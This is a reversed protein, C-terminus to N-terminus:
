HIKSVLIGNVSIAYILSTIFFSGYKCVGASTTRIVGRAGYMGRPRPYPPNDRKEWVKTLRPDVMLFCTFFHIIEGNEFGRLCNASSTLLFFLSPGGIFNQNEPIIVATTIFFCDRSYKEHNM